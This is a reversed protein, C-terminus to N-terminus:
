DTVYVLGPPLYLERASLRERERTRAVHDFRYTMGMFTVSGWIERGMYCGIPASHGDLVRELVIVVGQKRLYAPDGLRDLERLVLWFLPLALILALLAADLPSV